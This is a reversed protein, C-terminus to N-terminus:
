QVLVGLLASLLGKGRVRSNHVFEFFSLSVAGQAIPIVRTVVSPGSPPFCYLNWAGGGLQAAGARGIALTM